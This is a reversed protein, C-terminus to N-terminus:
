FYFNFKTKEMVKVVCRAPRNPSRIRTPALNEAGTWVPGSAWDPRRDPPLAALTHRVGGVVM